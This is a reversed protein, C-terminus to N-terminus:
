GSRCRRGAQRSRTRGIARIEIARLGLELVIGIPPLDHRVQLLRDRFLTLREETRMLVDDARRFHRLDDVVHAGNVSLCAFGDARVRFQLLARFVLLPGIGARRLPQVLDTFPCHDAAHAIPQSCKKAEVHRDHADDEHHQGQEGRTGPDEHIDDQHEHNGVGVRGFLVGGGM